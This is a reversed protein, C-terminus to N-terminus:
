LNKIEISVQEKLGEDIAENLRDILNNGDSTIFYEALNTIDSSVNRGWPPTKGLDEADWVIKDPSLKSFEQKIEELENQADKLKDLSLNGSYLENMIIPFKSGWEGKELDICITSFFSHFFDDTGVSFWLFDVKIGVVM